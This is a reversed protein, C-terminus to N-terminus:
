EKQLIESIPAFVMAFGLIPVLYSSLSKRYLQNPRDWPTEVKEESLRNRGM